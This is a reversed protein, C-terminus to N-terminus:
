KWIPQSKKYQEEKLAWMISEFAYQNAPCQNNELIWNFWLANEYYKCSHGYYCDFCPIKIDGVPKM